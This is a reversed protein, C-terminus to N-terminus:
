KNQLNVDLHPYPISIGLRDFERKVDELMDWTLPKCDEPAAWVLCIIEIASDLHGNMRVIPAPDKMAKPNALVLELITKRALEFDASYDISFRLELRRKDEANFNIITATIVQGNPIYIKKNDLTTLATYVFGIEAICGEEGDISCFDGVSFPKSVLLLSGGLLNALSDKVALSFAVGVAGVATILPTVPVSITDLVVLVLLVLLAIKVVTLLFPHIAPDIKKSRNLLKTLFKIFLHILFLGAAAIILAILLKPMFLIISTKIQEWHEM